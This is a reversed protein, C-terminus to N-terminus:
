SLPVVNCKLSSFTGHINLLSQLLPPQKVNRKEDIQYQPKYVIGKLNCNKFVIIILSKM